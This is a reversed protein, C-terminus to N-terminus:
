WPPDKDGCRSCLFVLDPHGGADNGVDRLLVVHLMHVRFQRRIRQESHQIPRILPVLYRARACALLDDPSKLANKQLSNKPISPDVPLGVRSRILLPTPPGALLLSAAARLALAMARLM